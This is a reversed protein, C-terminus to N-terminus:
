IPTGLAGSRKQVRRCAYEWEAETPLRYGNASWDATVTTGEITYVPTLGGRVSLKNCFEVAEYWTVQEVPRKGQIENVAPELGTTGDFNSPNNGTVIFYLEQTVQYRAMKFSNLKVSRVPTADSIDDQGMSFTGGKLAVMGEINGCARCIVGDFDKHGALVGTDNGGMWWNCNDGIYPTLGNQGTGGDKALIQWSDGNWIFSQLLSDNYYAWNLEPNEPHKSDAGRWDIGAGQRSLLEWATGTYIYANGDKTNFYAWNRGPSAPASALEGQWVIGAGAPGAPGDKGDAGAPGEPGTPGACAVLSFAMIALLFILGPIKKIAKFKSVNEM